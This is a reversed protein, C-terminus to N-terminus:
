WPFFDLDGLEYEINVLSSMVRYGTEPDVGWHIGYLKVDNGSLIEFVPSGSDGPDTQADYEDQCLLTQNSYVWFPINVCTFVVPGQTWGTTRGVKNLVEGGYPFAQFEIIRFKGSITISGFGTTKEIYGYDISPTSFYALLSDSWRCFQGSPCYQGGEFLLPDAVETGIFNTTPQYYSTNDVFGTNTSCHSNTVFYTYNAVFSLTCFSSGFIGPPSFKIHLGGGVPRVYQRLTVDPVVPGRTRRTVAQPPIGQRALEAVVLGWAADSEVGILVRNNREDIDTSWVGGTGLLNDLQRRWNALDTFGFEGQM